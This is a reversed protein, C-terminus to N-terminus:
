ASIVSTHSCMCRPNCSWCQANVQKQECICGQGAVIQKCHRSPQQLAKGAAQSHVSGGVTFISNHELLEVIMLQAEFQTVIPVPSKISSLVFGASIDTEEAGTIRLRLNEGSRTANVEKEDRYIGEVKVRLRCLYVLPVGFVHDSIYLLEGAQWCVGGGAYVCEVAM